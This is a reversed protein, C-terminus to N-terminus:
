CINTYLVLRDIEVFVFCPVGFCSLASKHLLPKSDTRLLKSFKGVKVMLM